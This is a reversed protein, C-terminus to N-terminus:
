KWVGHSWNRDTKTKRVSSYTSCVNRLQDIDFALCDNDGSCQSACESQAWAPDKQHQGVLKKSNLQMGELRSGIHIDFRGITRAIPPPAADTDSPQELKAAQPPSLSTRVATRLQDDPTDILLTLFRRDAPGQWMAEQPDKAIESKLERLVPTELARDTVQTFLRTAGVSVGGQFIAGISGMARRYRGDTYEYWATTLALDTPHYDPLTGTIKEAELLGQPLKRCLQPELRKAHVAVVYARFVQTLARFEKYAIAYDKPTSNADAALENMGPFSGTGDRHTIPDRVRVYMRPFVNSIDLAEGQRHLSVPTVTSASDRLSRRKRLLAYLESNTNPIGEAKEATTDSTETLDYWVRGGAITLKSEPLSHYKFLLTKAASRETASTYDPMKLARLPAIGLAPAGGALEKLLVDAKYLIEGFRTQALWEPQFVLRSRLNPYKRLLSSWYAPYSNTASITRLRLVSPTKRTAGKRLAWGTDKKAHEFFEKGAAETEALWSSINDPDLSFYPDRDQCAARLATLFLSADITQDANGRGSLVIRGDKVFAGEISLNLPMREAAAKSLSIGGPGKLVSPAAFNPRPPASSPTIAAVDTSFRPRATTPIEQSFSPTSRQDTGPPSTGLTTRVQKLWENTVSNKELLPAVGRPAVSDIFGKEYAMVFRAAVKAAQYSSPPLKVSQKALTSVLHKAFEQEMMSLAKDNVARGPAKRLKDYFPVVEGAVMAAVLSTAPDRGSAIMKLGTSGAAAYFAKLDGFAKKFDPDNSVSKLGAANASGLRDAILEASRRAAEAAPTQGIAPTSGATTTSQAATENLSVSCFIAIAVGLARIAKCAYQKM